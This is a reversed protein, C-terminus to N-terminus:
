RPDDPAVPARPRGDRVPTLGSADTLLLLLLPCLLHIAAAASRKQAQKDGTAAHGVTLCEARAVELRRSTEDNGTLQGLMADALGCLDSEAAAARPRRQLPHRRMALLLLLVALEGGRKSQRPLGNFFVHLADLVM